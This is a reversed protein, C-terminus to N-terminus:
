GRRLSEWAEFPPGPWAIESNPADLVARVWARVREQNSPLFPLAGIGLVALSECLKHGEYGASAETNLPFLAVGRVVVRGLVGDDNRLVIADRYRHLQNIADIPAAPGGFASVFDESADLRYKADLILIVKPLGVRAVEIVVDPTQTGTLGAFRQNYAVSVQGTGYPLSVRSVTGRRLRVRVGTDDLSFVHDPKVQVGLVDAVMRVVALYCWIEYLESLDKVSLDVTDGTVRLAMRLRLISQYAERYGEAGLLTLSSFDARVAGTADSLPSM